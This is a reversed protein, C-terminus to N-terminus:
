WVNILILQSLTSLLSDSRNELEIISNNQYQSITVLPCNDFGVAEQLSAPFERRCSRGEQETPEEAAKIKSPKSQLIRRVMHTMRYADIKRRM